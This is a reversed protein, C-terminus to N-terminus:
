GTDSKARELINEVFRKIPREMLKLALPIKGRAYVNEEDFSLTVRYGPGTLIASSRDPSWDVAKIWRPHEAQASTISKEFNVQAAEPSLGHKVTVNLEAM